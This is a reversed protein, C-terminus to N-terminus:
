CFGIMMVVLRIRKHAYFGTVLEHNENGKVSFFILYLLILHAPCSASIPCFVFTYLIKTPFGFYFLGSPLCLRLHTPLILTSRLSIPNPHYPSSRDPEPYPSSSPEESCPLSGEPEVLHQSIRSNSLLQCSRLFSEDGHLQNTVVGAVFCGSESIILPELLAVM